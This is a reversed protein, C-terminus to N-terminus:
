PDDLWTGEPETTTFLRLGGAGREKVWYSLNDPTDSQGQEYPM